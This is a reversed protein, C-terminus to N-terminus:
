MLLKVDGQSLVVQRHIYMAYISKSSPNGQASRSDKLGAVALGYPKRLLKAEVHFFHFDKSAPLFHNQSLRPPIQRSSEGRKPRHWCVEHSFTPLIV